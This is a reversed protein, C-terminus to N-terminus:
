QKILKLNLTKLALGVPTFFFPCQGAKQQGGSLIGVAYARNGDRVYVPSGSDGRRSTCTAGSARWEHKIHIMQSGEKFLVTEPGGVVTFGCHEGTSAGSYCVTMGTRPTMRGVIPITRRTYIGGVFVLPRVSRHRVLRVFASDGNPGLRANGREVRGLLDGPATGNSSIRETQHVLYAPGGTLTKTCHGATLVGVRNTTRSRVPFSVTCGGGSHVSRHVSWVYIDGGAIAVGSGPSQRGIATSSTASSGSATVTWPTIVAVAMLSVAAVRARM